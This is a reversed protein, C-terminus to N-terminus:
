DRKGRWWGPKFNTGYKEKLPKFKPDAPAYYHWRHDDVIAIPGIKLSYVTISGRSIWSGNIKEHIKGSCGATGCNSGHTIVTILEPSGDEDIDFEAFAMYYRRIIKIAGSHSVNEKEMVDGIIYDMTEVDTQRVLEYMIDTAVPALRVKTEATAQLPYFILTAIALLAFFEVRWRTNTPYFNIAM